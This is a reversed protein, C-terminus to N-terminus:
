SPSSSSSSSSPPLTPLIPHRFTLYTSSVFLVVRWCEIALFVIIIDFAAADPPRSPSVGSISILRHQTKNNIIKIPPKHQQEHEWPRHASNRGTHATATAPRSQHSRCARVTAQPRRHVGRYMFIRHRMVSYMSGTNSSGVKANNLYM